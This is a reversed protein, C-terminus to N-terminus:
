DCKLAAEHEDETLTRRHDSASDDDTNQDDADRVKENERCERKEDVILDVSLPPKSHYQALHPTPKEQERKEREIEIERKRM